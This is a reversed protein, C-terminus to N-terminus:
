PLSVIHGDLMLHYINLQTYPGQTASKHPAAESFTWFMLFARRRWRASSRLLCRFPLTTPLLLRLPWPDLHLCAFLFLDLSFSLYELVPCPDIQLCAVQAHPYMLRVFSTRPNAIRHSARRHHPEAPRSFSHNNPCNLMM